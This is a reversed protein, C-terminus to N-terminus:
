AALADTGRHWAWALFVGTALASVVGGWGYVAVYHAFLFLVTGFSWGGTDMAQRLGDPGAAFGLAMGGALVAGFVLLRGLNLSRDGFLGLAPVAFGVVLPAMSVFVRGFLALGGLQDQALELYFQMSLLSQLPVSLVGLVFVLVGFGARTDRWWTQRADPEPSSPM